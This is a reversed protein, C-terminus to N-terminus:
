ENVKQTKDELTKQEQWMVNEVLYAYQLNYFNAATKVKLLYTSTGEPDAKVQTVVGILMGPPFSLNVINSTLVSDGNAVHAGQTVSKMILYGPDAGDWDIEGLFFGKKMMASVKSKRNLLSMVRCYNASVDIVKGVASGNAGIVGMGINVGQNKGRFLTLYNNEETVSNNVVKAPLYIFRRMRGLTDKILSDVKVQKSSDPADFSSGLLNLLKTNEEALQKNTEKLHFYYEVDNYGKNIKGTVENATGSYVGQYTKNYNVLIALSVGLLVLFLFFTFFRRIFLFINRMARNAHAAVGHM